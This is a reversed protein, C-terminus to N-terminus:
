NALREGRVNESSAAGHLNEGVAEGRLTEGLRAARLLVFAAEQESMTDSGGTLALLIQGLGSELFAASSGGGTQALLSIARLTESM